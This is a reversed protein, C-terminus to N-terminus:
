YDLMDSGPYEDEDGDMRLWWRYVDEATEWKCKSKIRNKKNNEIMRAFAKMYNEKYKPYAELEAAAATNM